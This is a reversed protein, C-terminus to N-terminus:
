PLTFRAITLKIHPALDVLKDNHLVQVHRANGIVLTLPGRSRVVRESGAPNLSSVLMRDNADRVEIWAQEECRIVLRHSSGRPKDAMVAAVKEV